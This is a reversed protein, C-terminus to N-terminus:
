GELWVISVENCSCLWLPGALGDTLWVAFTAGFIPLVFPDNRFLLFSAPFARFASAAAWFAAALSAFSSSSSAARQLWPDLPTALFYTPVM